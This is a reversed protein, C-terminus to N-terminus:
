PGGWRPLPPPSPSPGFICWYQNATSVEMYYKNPLLPRRGRSRRYYHPHKLRPPYRSTKGPCLSLRRWIWAPPASVGPAMSLRLSGTITRQSPTGWTIVTPGQPNTVRSPNWIWTSVLRRQTTKQIMSWARLRVARWAPM